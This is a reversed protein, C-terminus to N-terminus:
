ESTELQDVEPAVAELAKLERYALTWVSSNYVEAWGGVLLIPSFAIVLFFPLGVVAAFIWPWYDPASLLGAIGATLLSPLIVAVVGGVATIISLVMLPIILIALIISMLIRIGVMVLWMLGTNKWQRRALGAASRLADMARAGDLVIERWALDRLVYLVAMLIVTIFISLFALGSGAIVSSLISWEVGGLLASIIWWAVLGLVVFLVLVPLHIVFDALFAQWAARSWGYRWAQRFGVKVGTGEYEDVMRIAAAESVYRLVTTVLGFLLIVVFLTIAVAIGMRFEVPHQEQLVRFVTQMQGVADGMKEAFTDGELDEWSESEWGEPFRESAPPNERGDGFSYNSSGGFRSGGAALALFFGFVWLVRYNWLIHWSRSLIKGIDFM